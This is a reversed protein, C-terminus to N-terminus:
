RSRALGVEEEVFLRAIASDRLREPELQDRAAEAPDGMAIDDRRPGRVELPQERCRGRCAM